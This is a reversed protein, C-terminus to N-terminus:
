LTIKIVEYMTGNTFLTKAFAAYRETPYHRAKQVIDTEQPRDTTPSLRMFYRKTRTHRLVYIIKDKM